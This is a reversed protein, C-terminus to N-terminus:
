SRKDYSDDGETTESFEVDIIDDNSSSHYENKYTHEQYDFSQQDKSMKRLKHKIYLGYLIVAGIILLVLGLIFPLLTIVIWLILIMVLLAIITQMPDRAKQNGNYALSVYFHIFLTFNM